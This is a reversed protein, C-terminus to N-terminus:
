HPGVGSSGIPHLPPLPDEKSCKDQENAELHAHFAHRLATADWSIGSGAAGAAGSGYLTAELMTIAAMLARDRTSAAWQQLSGQSAPVTQACWQVLLERCRPADHTKFASELHHLLEARRPMEAAWPTHDDPIATVPRRHFRRDLIWGALTLLWLLVGLLAM